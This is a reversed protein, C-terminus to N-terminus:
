ICKATMYYMHLVTSIKSSLLCVSIHVAVKVEKIAFQHAINLLFAMDINELSKVIVIILRYFM